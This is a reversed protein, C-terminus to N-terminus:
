EVVNFTQYFDLNFCVDLVCSTQENLAVVCPFYYVRKPVKTVIVLCFFWLALCSPPFIACRRLQRNQRVLMCISLVAAFAFAEDSTM